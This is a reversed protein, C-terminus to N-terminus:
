FIRSYELLFDRFGYQDSVGGRGPPCICVFESKNPDTNLNICQADGYCPNAACPKGSTDLRDCNTGTVGKFIHNLTLNLFVILCSNFKNEIDLNALRPVTVDSYPRITSKM